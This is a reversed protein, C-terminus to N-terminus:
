HILLNRKSRMALESTNQLSMFLTLLLPLFPTLLPPVSSTSQATYSVTSTIPAGKSNEHYQPGQSHSSWASYWLKTVSWLLETRFLAIHDRFKRARDQICFHPRQGYSCWALFTIHDRISHYNHMSDGRAHEKDLTNATKKWDEIREQLPTILSEMLASCSFVFLPLSATLEIM